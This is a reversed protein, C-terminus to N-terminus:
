KVSRKLMIMVYWRREKMKPNNDTIIWEKEMKEMHHIFYKSTSKYEWDSTSYLLRSLATVFEARTVEDNPRFKNKPMNIWMIWLQYALTVWSNYNEDLNDSVDKFKNYKTKDPNMWLVNIAYQSLMKAMQIRTLKWDIDADQITPKTTIGNKYAFEYAEQFEDRVPWHINEPNEKELWSSAGSNNQPNNEPSNTPTETEKPTDPKTNSWWGWSYWNSIKEWIAKITMDEAPMTTPIPYDWWKFIYWTKTPNIPPTIESWYDWTIMVVGSWWDTDFTIKYQNVIWNAEYNKVWISGSPIVVVMKIWEIDTGSWWTFTYWTKVPNPLTVNGDEISYWSLDEDDWSFVWWNLNYSISYIVADWKALLETYKYLPQSFDFEWQGSMYWWTFTYWTKSPNWPKVWTWWLNLIQFDVPTWGKTNFKLTIDRTFYGTQFINDILAYTKDVKSSNFKTGNWWVLNKDWYFMSTDSLLQTTVFWSDAYITELNSCSSFMYNMGTVNSTDFNSIDLQLLSSCNSFMSSMNTVKSTNFNSVNLWTLTKCNQFMNEMNKVNSTNWGSMNINELKNCWQFMSKMNTVKSTNFNSVDLWTLIDCDAFMYSMDTVNSTDFHSVDIWTLKASHYFMYSMNTVKSTKFNSVDLWTLSKNQYFMHSMNTVNSTDLKNVGIINTLGAFTWYMNTVKSTNWNSVDLWKLKDCWRFMSSMNTVNSTDFNPMNIWTLIPNVFFMQSMNTVKSTDFNSIDLRNIKSLRSFMNRMNTVKSTDFDSVDLWKLGQLYYFMHSSDQNLYIKEAKTSYYLNWWTFRVYVHHDWSLYVDWTTVWEPIEYSRQFNIIKNDKWTYPVYEWNNALTKIISNFQIWDLLTVETWPEIDMITSKQPQQLELFDEQFLNNEKIEDWKYNEQIEELEPQNISQSMIDWDENKNNSLLDDDTVEKDEDTVEKDEDTIEKNKDYVNINEDGILGDIEDIKEKENEPNLLISEAFEESSKWVENNELVNGSIEVQAYSFPSIVNVSVLMILATLNILKKM